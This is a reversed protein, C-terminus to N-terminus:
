GDMVLVDGPKFRYNRFVKGLEGRRQYGAISLNNVFETFNGDYGLVDYFKVEKNSEEVAIKLMINNM